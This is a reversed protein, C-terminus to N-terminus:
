GRLQGRTILYVDNAGPGGKGGKCLKSKGYKKAATLSNGAACWGGNQVAFIRLGKKAAMKYCKNIADKRKQYDGGGVYKDMNPIARAGGKDTWCGGSFFGSPVCKSSSSSSSTHTVVKSSSTHTVVKSYVKVVPKSYTVTKYVKRYVAPDADEEEEEDDEDKDEDEEDEEDVEEEDEEEEEDQEVPTENDVVNEVTNEDQPQTVEIAEEECRAVSAVGVLFIAAVVLFLKM